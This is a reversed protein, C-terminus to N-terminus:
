TKLYALRKYELYDARLDEEQQCSDQREWCYGKRERQPREPLPTGNEIADFFREEKLLMWIHQRETARRSDRKAEARTYGM